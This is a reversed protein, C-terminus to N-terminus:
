EEMKEIKPKGTIPDINVVYINEEDKDNISIFRLTGGSSNGRPYFLIMFAGETLTEDTKQYDLIRVTEDIQKPPTIEEQKPIGLSYQNEDIDINFTYLTKKSIAESRAYQLASAIKRVESQLKIRDLTSAVFPVTLGAILSMLLLVLVLELLTFGNTEGKLRRNLTRGASLIWITKKVVKLKTQVM